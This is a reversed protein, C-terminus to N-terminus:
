DGVSIVLPQNVEEPKSVDNRYADMVNDIRQGDGDEPAKTDPKNATLPDLTQSRVMQRVSNGFDREVTEPGSACGALALSALCAAIKTTTYQM